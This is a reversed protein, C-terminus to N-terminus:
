RTLVLTRSATDSGTRLRVFYTGGAVREGADNRGDWTVVHTGRPRESGGLRRVRRGGVDHISVDVRGAAPLEFSLRTSDRFPNPSPAGLRVGPATAGTPRPASVATDLDIRFLGNAFGSSVFLTEGTPTSTIGNPSHLKAIDAPGAEFGPEGSGALWSVSGDALSIEFVQHLSLVCAFLRGGACHLYGVGPATAFATATGDPAIKTVSSDGNGVYLNGAEDFTLAHPQSVLPGDYFLEATQDPHLIVITSAVNTAVYLDGNGSPHFELDAPGDLSADASFVTRTGDPTVHHVRDRTLNAIYLNGAADFATGLPGALTGFSTFVESEGGPTTRLVQRESQGFLFYTCYIRGDPGYSVADNALSGEPLVVSVQPLANAVTALGLAAAALALPRFRSM